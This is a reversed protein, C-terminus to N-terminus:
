VGQEQAEDMASTARNAIISNLREIEEAQHNYVAKKLDENENFLEKNEAERYRCEEKLREIEKDKTELEYELSDITRELSIEYTADGM